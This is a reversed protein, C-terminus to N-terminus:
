TIGKMMDFPSKQTTEINNNISANSAYVNAALPRDANTNNARQAAPNSLMSNSRAASPFPKSIMQTAGLSSLGQMNNSTEVKM